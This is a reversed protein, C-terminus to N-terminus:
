RSRGYPTTDLIEPVRDGDVDEWGFLIPPVIFPEYTAQGRCHAVWDHSAAWGWHHAVEHHYVANALNIWQAATLPRAWKSYNGMYVFRDGIHSFGGESRAPDLNISAIFQYGRTTGGNREVTERVSSLRRPEAIASPAVFVNTNDFSVIPRALGRSSAFSAHDQNIKQQAREWLRLGGTGITDSHRVIVTLVRFRGVPAVVSRVQARRTVTGGDPTMYL